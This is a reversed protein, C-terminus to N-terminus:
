LCLNSHLIFVYIRTNKVPIYLTLLGNATNGLIM